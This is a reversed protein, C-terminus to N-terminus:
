RITSILAMCIREAPINIKVAEELTTKQREALLENLFTPLYQNMEEASLYDGNPDHYTQAYLFKKLKEIENDTLNNM